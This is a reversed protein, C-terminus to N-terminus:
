AHNPVWYRYRHHEVCGLSAYLAIAAANHEAVQLACHKAGREAGWAALGGMLLRALGRRRAEPRVALRAVHLLDGVVAGRVAALVEGDRVVAGFGVADLGAAGPGSAGPKTTGSGTVGGTLVHRQAATPEPQAVLEWWGPFPADAVVVDPRKPTAFGAPEGTMVLSEVGGPHELDPRWGARGVAAEVPAGVVVHATPRIGNRRAFDIVRDLAAPVPLGPDGTTLASNARGTFGGAARLRWRGLPVDVVAPWADACRQELGTVDHM